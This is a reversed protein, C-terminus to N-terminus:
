IHRKRFRPFLFLHVGSSLEMISCLCSHQLLAVSVTRIYFIFNTRGTNQCSIMVNFFTELLLKLDWHSGYEVSRIYATHRVTELFFSLIRNSIWTFVVHKMWGILVMFLV